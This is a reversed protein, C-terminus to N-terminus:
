EVRGVMHSEYQKLIDLLYCSFVNGMKRISSNIKLFFYKYQSFLILSSFTFSTVPLFM